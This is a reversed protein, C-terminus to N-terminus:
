KFKPQTIVGLARVSSYTHRLTERKFVYQIRIGSRKHLQSACGTTHQRVISIKKSSFTYGRAKRGCMSTTIGFQTSGPSLPFGKTKYVHAVGGFEADYFVHFLYKNHHPLIWGTIEHSQARTSMFVTSINNVEKSEFCHFLDCSFCCMNM